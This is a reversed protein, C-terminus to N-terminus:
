DETSFVRKLRIHTEHRFGVRVRYREILLGCSRAARAADRGWAVDSTTTDLIEPIRQGFTEESRHALLADPVHGLHAERWGTFWVDVIADTDTTAAPRLQFLGTTATHM